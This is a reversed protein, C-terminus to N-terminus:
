KTDKKTNKANKDQKAAQKMWETYSPGHKFVGGYVGSNDSNGRSIRVPVTIFM